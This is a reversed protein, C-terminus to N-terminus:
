RSVGSDDRVSMQARLVFGFVIPPDVDCRVLICDKGPPPPTTDAPDADEPCCVRFQCLANRSNIQSSDPALKPTELEIQRASVYTVSKM